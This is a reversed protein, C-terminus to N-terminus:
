RANHKQRNNQQKKKLCFVAYSIRMLTQLESTHEVSSPEAGAANGGAAAAFPVPRTGYAFLPVALLLIGAAFGSTAARWGFLEALLNATPFSVTGALGAILTIRTIARRADGGRTRTLFAFCPEYLCLAM